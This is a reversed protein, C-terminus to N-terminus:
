SSFLPPRAALRVLGNQPGRRAPPPGQCFSGQGNRIGRQLSALFDFTIQVGTSDEPCSRQDSAPPPWSVCRAAPLVAEESSAVETESWATSDRWSTASPAATTRLEDQTLQQAVQTRLSHSDRQTEEVLTRATEEM